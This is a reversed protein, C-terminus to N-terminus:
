FNGTLAIIVGVAVINILLLLTINALMFTNVYVLDAIELKLSIILGILSLLWLICAAAYIACLARVMALLDLEVRGFHLQIPKIQEFFTAFGGDKITINKPNKETTTSDLLNTTAEIEEKNYDEIKNTELIDNGIIELEHLNFTQNNNLDNNIEKTNKVTENLNTENLLVQDTNEDNIEEQTINTLWVNRGVKEQIEEQTKNFNQNTNELLETLTTNTEETDNLSKIFLFPEDGVITGEREQNEEFIGNTTKNHHHFYKYGGSHVFLIGILLCSLILVITQIALSVLGSLRAPVGFIGRVGRHEFNNNDTREGNLQRQQAASAITELTQPPFNSVM